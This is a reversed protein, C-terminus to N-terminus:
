QKGHDIEGLEKEIWDIIPINQKGGQYLKTIKEQMEKTIETKNNEFMKLIIYFHVFSKSFKYRNTIKRLFSNYRQCLYKKYEEEHELMDWDIKYGGYITERIHLFYSYIKNDELTYHFENFDLQAELATIDMIKIEYDINNEKIHTRRLRQKYNECLVIFDLDNCNNTDEKLLQSGTKFIELIKADEKELLLIEEAKDKINM